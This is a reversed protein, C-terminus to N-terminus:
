QEKDIETPSLDVFTGGDIKISVKCEYKLRNADEFSFASLSYVAVTEQSPHVFHGFADGDFETLYLGRRRIFVVSKQIPATRDVSFANTPGNESTSNIDIPCNTDFLFSHVGKTWYNAPFKHEFIVHWPHSLTTPEIDSAPTNKWQQLFMPRWIFGIMAVLLTVICIISTIVINTRRSIKTTEANTPHKHPM